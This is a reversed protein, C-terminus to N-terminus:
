KQKKAKANSKQTEKIAANQAAQKAEEQLRKLVENRNPVMLMDLATAVDLLGMNRLMPVMNRLMVASMPQLSAPDIYAAYEAVMDRPIPQWDVHGIGDAKFDVFKRPETYYQAMTSFIMMALKQYPLYMMRARGRTLVHSQAIAGEFSPASTNGAPAKGQRADPFGQLRRQLTLLLEPLAFAAQPINGGYVIEPTPSNANKVQVEGPIGGFREIDIGTAEDIFWTGNNMRVCNEFLQTYFREAMRQLDKTYRVPPPAWFGFMSPMGIFRILPTMGHLYPNQDDYLIVGSCEIVMRGRPYRLRYTPRAVGELELKANKGDKEIRVMAPDRTFLTRVRLRNDGPNTNNQSPMGGVMMSMPGSPVELGLGMGAKQAASTMGATPSEIRFQRVRDAAGPWKQLIEDIWMFDELICYNWNNDDFAYPDPFVTEPDRFPTVVDGRGNRKDPDWGVQLFSTGCFWTSLMVLMLNLNTGCDRMQARLAAENIKDQELTDFNKALYIQPQIDTVEVAEQVGLLQLEPVPVEPRFIPADTSKSVLTYFERIDKYFSEGLQDKKQARSIRQLTEMQDTLRKEAALLGEHDSRPKPAAAM